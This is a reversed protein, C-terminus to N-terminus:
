SEGFKIGSRRGVKPWIELLSVFLNAIIPGLLVGFLGFMQLGGFIAVLSLLPPMNGGGKLIIPKVTNEAIGTFVGVGIMIFAKATLGHLYLYLTGALWVPSCSVIPVFSLIFTAGAAFFAGPVNLFLFGLFILITEAGAAALVSLVVSRTTKEASTKINEEVDQDIPIKEFIWHSLSNGNLLFVFCAFLALILHLFLDPLHALFRLAADRIVEGVQQVSERIKQEIAPQDGVLSEAMPIVSLKQSIVEYSLNKNKALAEGVLKGERVALISFAVLPVGILLSLVSTLCIASLKPSWNRIQLKRFFPHLLLAFVAGMMVAIIFPAIMKLFLFLLGLLIALFTILAARNNM